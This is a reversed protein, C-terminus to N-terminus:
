QKGGQFHRKIDDLASASTRNHLERAAEQLPSNICRLLAALEDLALRDCTRAGIEDFLVEVASLALSADLCTYTLESSSSNQNPHNPRFPKLTESKEARDQSM